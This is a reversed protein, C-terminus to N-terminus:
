VGRRPRERRTLLRWARGMRELDRLLRLRRRGAAAGAEHRSTGAGAAGLEVARDLAVRALELGARAVDVAVPIAVVLPVPALVLRRAALARAFAGPRADDALACWAAEPAFMGLAVRGHVEGVAAVAARALERPGDRPGELRSRVQAPGALLDIGTGRRRLSVSTALGGDGLCGVLVVHGEPFLLDLAGAVHEPSPVPVSMWPAPWADLAGEQVLERAIRWATLGQALMDDSPTARAGFREAAEELAGARLTAAWASGHSAALASASLPWDCVGADLRGRRTHLLKVLRGREHLAVVGGRAARESAARGGRLGLCRLLRVWESTSFGEFRVDATLV